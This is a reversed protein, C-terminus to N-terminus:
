SSCRLDGIGESLGVKGMNAPVSFAIDVGAPSSFVM